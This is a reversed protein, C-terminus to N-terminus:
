RQFARFFMNQQVRVVEGGYPIGKKMVPRGIKPGFMPYCTIFASNMYVIWVMNPFLQVRAPIYDVLQSVFVGRGASVKAMFSVAGTHKDGSVVLVPKIGFM